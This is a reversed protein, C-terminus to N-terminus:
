GNKLEEILSKKDDSKMLTEGILVADVNNEKLKTVDEKTKIGSESIFIINDSVCRRLNISNDIDVSFDELNRNNVGIIEAGVNMATRIENGDHTEVIASLGLDHALDLFKKLQVIDLISVILLVASAGLLKAEWIMYEDIIFDKRLIPISVNESIEKLYDNSGQFFYPETLVSIASAGADEYEKAIGVHDFDECIVGKSPSAKKVESIIAIQPDNLAEKFPFDNSIEMQSVERKIEELSKIEKAQKLREQTKGVIKELM